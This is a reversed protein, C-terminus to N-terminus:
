DGKGIIYCQDGGVCVIDGQRVRDDTENDYLTRIGLQETSLDDTPERLASVVWAVTTSAEKPVVCAWFVDWASGKKAKKFVRILTTSKM